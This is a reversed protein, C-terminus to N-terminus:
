RTPPTYTPDEDTVARINYGNGMIFANYFLMFKWSPQHRFQFFIGASHHWAGSTWIYSDADRYYIAANDDYDRYGNTPFLTILMHEVNSYAAWDKNAEDWVGNWDAPNSSEGGARLFGTFADPPAVKFGPPCPDYITKTSNNATHPTQAANKSDWLNVFLDDTHYALKDLSGRQDATLDAYGMRHFVTPNATRWALLSRKPNPNAASAGERYRRVDLAVHNGDRDIGRFPDKRGWQYFLADGPSLVAHPMQGVIIEVNTNETASVFRVRCTRKRYDKIKKFSIWGLNIPALKYTYNTNSTYPIVYQSQAGIPSCWIHWSWIIRGLTDYLAIVTNGQKATAKPIDFTIGGVTKSPDDPYHYLSSNYSVNTVLGPTDTWLVEAHSITFKAYSQGAIFATGIDNGLHDVFTSLVNGENKPTGSPGKYADTVIGKAADYANGYVLPFMYYGSRATVYCNATTGLTQNLAKTTLNYRLTPSGVEGSRIVSDLDVIAPNIPDTSVNIRTFETGSGPGSNMNLKLWSPPTASWTTSGEPMFEAKWALPKPTVGDIKSLLDISQTGGNYPLHVDVDNRSAQLGEYVVDMVEIYNKNSIRYTCTKGPIWLKDTINITDNSTVGNITKELVLREGRWTVNAIGVPPVPPLLLVKGDLLDTMHNSTILKNVPMIVDGAGWAYDMGGTMINLVGNYWTNILRISHIFAGEMGDGIEFRLAALAHKFNINVTGPNECDVGNEDSTGILLDTQNDLNVAWPTPTIYAVAPCDAPEHYTIGPKYPAYAAFRMYQGPEHPWFFKSQLEYSGSSNRKVPEHMFYKPLPGNEDWYDRFLYASARFEDYMNDAGTVLQTARSKFESETVIKPDSTVFGDEIKTHLYLPKDSNAAKLDLQKVTYSECKAAVPLRCSRSKGTALNSWSNTLSASFRIASDQRQSTLEDACGTLLLSLAAAASVLLLHFISRPTITAM